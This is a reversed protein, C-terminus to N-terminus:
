GKSALPQGLKLPYGSFQNNEIAKKLSRILFWSLIYLLMFSLSAVVFAYVWDLLSNHNIEFASLSRLRDGQTLSTTWDWKKLISPQLLLLLLIKLEIPM